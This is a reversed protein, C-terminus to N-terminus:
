AMKNAYEMLVRLGNITGPYEVEKLARPFFKIRGIAKLIRDEFANSSKQEDRILMLDVDGNSLIFIFNQDFDKGLKALDSILNASRNVIFKLEKDQPMVFYAHFASDHAEDASSALTFLDEILYVRYGRVILKALLFKARRRNEEKGLTPLYASIVGSVNRQLSGMSERNEHMTTKM